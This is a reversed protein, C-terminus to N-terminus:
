GCTKFTFSFQKRFKKKTTPVQLRVDAKLTHSGPTLKTGDVVAFFPRKSDKGNPKSDLKFIVVTVRSLRNVTVGKVKKKLAIPFRHQFNGIRVCGFIALDQPGQLCVSNGGAQGAGCKTPPTEAPKALQVVLQPSSAQATGGPNTATVRCVIAHGDDAPTLTYTQGVAGPIPSGDRLWAFALTPGGTWTGPDCRITDGSKGTGPVSPKTTNSPKEPPPPPPSSQASVAVGGSTADATGGGNSGTVRCSISHGADDSTLTYQQLIAGGIPSGDRFWQFTFSPSGSWGGPDCTLTQGVVGSGSVSPPSSNSPPLPPVSVPDSTVPASSGAGNTGVVRCAVSHGADSSTLTYQQTTVGISSGDRLWEYTFTPSGTWQGPDCTVAQGATAAGTVAPKVDNTPAPVGVKLRFGTLVSEQDYTGGGSIANGTLQSFQGTHNTAVPMFLFTDGNQAVFGGGQVVALTGDVTASGDVQLVDFQTGATTGNVEIQLTGSSGQTYDNDVTLTGASNGPAVTGSTNQFDGGVHGTGKVVGANTVTV